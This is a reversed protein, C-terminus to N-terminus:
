RSWSMHLKSAQDATVTHPGWASRSMGEFFPNERWIEPYFNRFVFDVFHDLRMPAACAVRCASSNISVHAAPHEETARDIDYDFRIASRLIVDEPKGAAYVDIVDVPAEHQLLDADIKFPCPVWPLRHAVLSHGVFDYTMQLLAGDNLLASYAGSELWTRYGLLSPPESAHLFTLGTAFLRWTVRGGENAVPNTHLAIENDILYTLLNDLEDRVHRSTPAM